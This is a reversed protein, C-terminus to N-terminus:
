GFQTQVSRRDGRLLHLVAVLVLLPKHPAWQDGWQFVNLDPNDAKM